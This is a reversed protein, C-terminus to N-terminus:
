EDNRWGTGVGREIILECCAGARQAWLPAEGTAILNEMAGNIGFFCAGVGRATDGNDRVVVLMEAPDGSGWADADGNVYVSGNLRWPTYPYEAITSAAVSKIWDRSRTAPDPVGERPFLGNVIAAWVFNGCSECAVRQLYLRDSPTMARRPSTTLLLLVAGGLLLAGVGLVILLNRSVQKWM